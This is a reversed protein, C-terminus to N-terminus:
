KKLDKLSFLIFNLEENVRTFALFLAMKRCNMVAYKGKREMDVEFRMLSKVFIIMIFSRNLCVYLRKRGERQEYGQQISNTESSNCDEEFMLSFNKVFLFM